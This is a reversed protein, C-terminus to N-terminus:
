RRADRTTPACADFMGAFDKQLLLSSSRLTLRHTIPINEFILGDTM